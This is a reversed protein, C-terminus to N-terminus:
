GREMMEQRGAGVNGVVPYKILKVIGARNPAINTFDGLFLGTKTFATFHNQTM